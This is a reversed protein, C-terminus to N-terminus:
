ISGTLTSIPPATNEPTVYISVTIGTVQDTDDDDDDTDDPTVPLPIGWMELPAPDGTFSVNAAFLLRRGSTMGLYNKRVTSTTQTSYAVLGDATLHAGSTNGGDDTDASTLDDFDAIRFFQPAGTSAGKGSGSTAARARIMLWDYVGAAVTPVIIGPDTGEDFDGTSGRADFSASGVLVPAFGGGGSANGAVAAAVAGVAGAVGTDAVTEAKAWLSDGARLTIATTSNNAPETSTSYADVRHVAVTEDNGPTVVSSGSALHYLTVAQPSVSFNALSVRSLEVTAPPSYLSTVTEDIVSQHVLESLAGQGSSM